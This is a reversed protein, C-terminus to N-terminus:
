EFWERSFYLKNSGMIVWARKRSNCRHFISAVRTVEIVRLGQPNVQRGWTVMGLRTAVLIPEDELYRSALSTGSRMKIWPTLKETPM